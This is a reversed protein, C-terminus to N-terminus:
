TQTSRDASHLRCIRASAQHYKDAEPSYLRMEHAARDLHQWYSRALELDDGLHVLCDFALGLENHELYERAHSQKAGPIDSLEALAANLHRTTRTWSAMLEARDDTM